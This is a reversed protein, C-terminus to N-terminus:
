IPLKLDLHKWPPTQLISHLVVKLNAVANLHPLREVVMHFLISTDSSESLVM